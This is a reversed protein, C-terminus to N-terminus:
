LFNKYGNGALWNNLLQKESATCDAASSEISEQLADYGEYTGNEISDANELLTTIGEKLSSSGGSSFNSDSLVTILDGAHTRNVSVSGRMLKQCKCSSSFVGCVCTASGQSNVCDVQCSSLGGCACNSVVDKAPKSGDIDKASKSGNFSLLAILMLPIISISFLINKM